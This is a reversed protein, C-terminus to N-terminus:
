NSGIMNTGNGHMPGCQAWGVADLENNYGVILDVVVTSCLKTKVLRGLLKENSTM